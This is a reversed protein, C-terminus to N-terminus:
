ECQTRRSSCIPLAAQRQFVGPRSFDGQWHIRGLDIDTSPTISGDSRYVYITDLRRPQCRTNTAAATIRGARDLRLFTTAPLGIAVSRLTQGHAASAGTGGAWATRGRRQREAQHGPESSRCAAGQEDREEKPHDTTRHDRSESRGAQEAWAVPLLVCAVALAVVLATMRRYPRHAVTFNSM